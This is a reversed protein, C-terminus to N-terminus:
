KLFDEVELVATLDLAARLEAPAAGLLAETGRQGTVRIWVRHPMGKWKLLGPMQKFGMGELLKRVRTTHLVVPPDREALLKTLCASSLISASVGHAGEEIHFKAIAALTDGGGAISFAESHAIASAMMKTGGAFQPYEFM